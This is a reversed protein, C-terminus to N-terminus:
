HPNWKIEPTSSLTNVRRGLVFLLDSLRNLYVVSFEDISEEHSLKVALREARRCVTRAFHIMAATRNGGPLIFNRLPQLLLEIKDIHHELRSIDSSQIRKNKKKSPQPAALDAGLTFLDNQIEELIVDVENVTNVSRCVGIVSNLEDVTGYAEIRLSDKPVRKGGFLSTEGTDGTKTYIKL